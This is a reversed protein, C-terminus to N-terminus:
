PQIRDLVRARGSDSFHTGYTEARRDNTLICGGTGDTREAYAVANQAELYVVHSVDNAVQAGDPQQGIRRVESPKARDQMLSFTWSEGPGLTYFAIGKDIDSFIEDHAGLLEFAPVDQRLVVPSQGSPFDALMLTGQAFQGLKRDYDQLFYVKSADHAIEWEAANTLIASPAVRAVDVTKVVKLTEGGVAQPAQSFAFYEGNAGFRARWLLAGPGDAALHEVKPLPGGSGDEIAGALIDLERTNPAFEDQNKQTVVSDICYAVATRHEAFCRGGRATTLQRALTWGPRWAFVPGIYPDPTDPPADAYFILTDGSFYHDFPHSVGWLQSGTFLNSTLRFCDLGEQACSIPAGAIAKSINLVWLESTVGADSSPRSFACWREPHSGHSCSSVGAGVLSIPGTLIRRTLAPDAALRPLEVFAPREPPIYGSDFPPPASTASEAMGADHASSQEGPQGDGGCHSAGLLGALIAVRAPIVRRPDSPTGRRWTAVALTKM